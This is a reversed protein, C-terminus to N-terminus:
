IEILFGQMYAAFDKLEQGHLHPILSKSASHSGKRIAAGGMDVMKRGFFGLKLPRVSDDYFAEHAMDSFRLMCDGLQEPQRDGDIAAQLVKRFTEHFEDPMQFGVYDTTVGDRTVTLRRSRIVSSLPRLEDNSMKSMVQRILAHVTSKILGAFSELIRASAAKQDSARVINLLLTDVIEDSFLQSVKVFLASQSEPVGKEFNELLQLSGDRLADSAKFAFYRTM